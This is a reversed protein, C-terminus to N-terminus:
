TSGGTPALAPRATARWAVVLASLVLAAALWFTAGIWPNNPHTSAIASFTRTFVTPAIIGAISSLSAIAGQLRGQEHPSVHRTMIAQAAPQSLGWLAAIPMAAWFWYGTTAFGYLTFGLTGCALGILLTRREGFRAIFRKILGGQVIAALV